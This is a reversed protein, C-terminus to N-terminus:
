PLIIGGRRPLERMASSFVQAWEFCLDAALHCAGAWTNMDGDRKLGSADIARVRYGGGELPFIAVAVQVLPAPATGNVQGASM